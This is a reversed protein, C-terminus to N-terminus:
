NKQCQSLFIKTLETIGRQTYFKEFGSVKLFVLPDRVFKKEAKHSLLNKDLIRSVGRMNIKKRYRFNESGWFPWERIKETVRFTKSM